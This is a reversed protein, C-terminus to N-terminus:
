GVVETLNLMPEDIRGRFGRAATGEEDISPSNRAEILGTGPRPYGPGSPHAAVLQYIYSNTWCKTFWRVCFLDVMVGNQPNWAVSQFPKLHITQFLQCKSSSVVKIFIWGHRRSICVMQPNCETAPLWMNSSCGIMICDSVVLRHYHPNIISVFMDLIPLDIM